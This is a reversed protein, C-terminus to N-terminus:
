HLYAELVIAVRGERPGAKEDEENPSSFYEVTYDSSPREMLGTNEEGANHSCFDAMHDSSQDERFGANEEGANPSSVNSTVKEENEVM